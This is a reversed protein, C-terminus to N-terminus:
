LLVQWVAQGALPRVRGRDRRTQAFLRGSRSVGSDEAGGSRWIDEVAGGAAFAGRSFLFLSCNYKSLEEKDIQKM